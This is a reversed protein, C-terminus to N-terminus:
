HAAAPAAAHAKSLAGERAERALRAIRFFERSKAEQELRLLRSRGEPRGARLEVEGLALAVEFALRRNGPKADVDTMLARLGSLAQTTEGRAGRIRMLLATNKVRRAFVDTKSLAERAAKEAGASDGLRYKCTAEVFLVFAINRQPIGVLPRKALCALGERARGSDCDLECARRAYNGSDKRNGVQEMIKAARLLSERAEDLHDGERLIEAEEGLFNSEDDEGGGERGKLDNLARRAEDLDAEALALDARVHQYGGVPPEDIAEAESRAQALRGHAGKLDGLLLFQYASLTLWSHISFHNGLRRHLGTVEDVAALAKPPPGSQTIVTAIRDKARVLEELDGLEAFARAAEEFRPLAEAGHAEGM